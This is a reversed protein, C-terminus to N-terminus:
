PLGHIRGETEGIKKFIALSMQKAKESLDSGNIMRVIDQYSRHHHAQGGHHQHRHEQHHHSHEEHKNGHGHNDQRQEDHHHGHGHNDHSHEEHHHVHGHYDTKENDHIHAHGHGNLQDGKESHQEHTHPRNDHKLVVDFKTATIGNKIVKQAELTYEDDFSLKKLEEKLYSFDGGADLLAGITM